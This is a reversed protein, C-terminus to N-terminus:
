NSNPYILAIVNAVQVSVVQELKESLIMINHQNHITTGSSDM